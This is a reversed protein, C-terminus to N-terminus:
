DMSEITEGKTPEGRKVLNRNSRYNVFQAPLGEGQGLTPSTQLHFHLHPESTNGSNGCRGVEHGAQVHDGKRVTVTGQRIHALFGYENNGFDIVVHNGAPHAPDTSGIRQDPLGDVAHVVTGDASALIPQNWCHYNALVAPDGSHTKGDRVIVLDIAFRQGRDVAHYNDDLGRGGWYVYWPGEIPLRLDARTEYDLFRSSAEAAKPRVFFGSIRDDPDFAVVLEIPASTGSWRSLRTYVQHSRQPAVVESLVETETGFRHRVQDRVTMLAESSRLAHHMAPTMDKWISQVDGQAFSRGVAQGRALPDATAPSSLTIRSVAAATGALWRIM